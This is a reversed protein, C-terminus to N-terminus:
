PYEPSTFHTILVQSWNRFEYVFHRTNTLNFFGLIM